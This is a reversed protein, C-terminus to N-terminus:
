TRPGLSNDTQRPMSDPMLNPVSNPVSNPVALIRGYTSDSPRMAAHSSCVYPSAQAAAALNGRAACRFPARRAAPRAAQRISRLATTASPQPSVAAAQGSPGQRM